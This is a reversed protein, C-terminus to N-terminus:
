NNNLVDKAPRIRRAGLKSVALTVLQRSGAAMMLISSLAAGGIAPDADRGIAMAGGHLTAGAQM